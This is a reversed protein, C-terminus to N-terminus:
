LQVVQLSQSFGCVTYTSTSILAAYGKFVYFIDDTESCIIDKNLLTSYTGEVLLHSILKCNWCELICCDNLNFCVFANSIDLTQLSPTNSFQFM